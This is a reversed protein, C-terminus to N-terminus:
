ASASKRSAEGHRQVPTAKWAVIWSSKEMVIRAHTRAHTHTNFLADICAVVVM